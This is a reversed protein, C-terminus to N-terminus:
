KTSVESDIIELEATEIGADKKLETLQTRIDINMKAVLFAVSLHPLASKLEMGHKSALEEPSHDQKLRVIFTGTVLGLQLSNLNEVVPLESSNKIILQSNNDRKKIVTFDTRRTVVPGLSEQYDKSPIAVLEPRWIFERGDSTLKESDPITDISKRGKALTETVKKFAAEALNRDLPATGTNQPANLNAKLMSYLNSSPRPSPTKEETKLADAQQEPAATQSPTRQELYWIVALLTLGIFSAIVIIRIKKKGIM